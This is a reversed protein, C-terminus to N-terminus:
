YGNISDSEGRKSYFLADCDGKDSFRSARLIAGAECPIGM